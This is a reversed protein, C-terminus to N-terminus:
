ICTLHLPQHPFLLRNLLWRRGDWGNRGCTMLEGNKHNGSKRSRLHGWIAWWCRCHLMGFSIFHPIDNFLFFYWSLFFICTGWAFSCFVLKTWVFKPWIYYDCAVLVLDKIVNISHMRLNEFALGIWSLWWLYCMSKQSSLSVSTIQYDDYIVCGSLSLGNKIKIM